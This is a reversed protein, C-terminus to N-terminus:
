NVLPWRQLHHHHTEGLRSHVLVFENVTWRVSEVAHEPVQKRDYLLTIHPTFQTRAWRGLGAQKLARGLHSHFEMLSKLDTAGRLVFPRKHSSGTFSGARDFTVEFSPMRMTGAAETADRVLGAPLGVYDGLHVLSIHFRDPALPRGTLGHQNCLLGALQQLRGAVPAPPLIAYFLRDTAGLEPAIDNFSLQPPM